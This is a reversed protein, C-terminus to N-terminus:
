KSNKSFTEPLNSSEKRLYRLRYFQTYRLGSDLFLIGYQYLDIGLRGTESQLWSLWHQHRRRHDYPRPMVLISRDPFDDASPFPDADGDIIFIPRDPYHSRLRVMLGKPRKPRLVQDAFEFALPAQLAHRTKSRFLYNLFSALSYYNM